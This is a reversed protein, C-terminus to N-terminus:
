DPGRGAALKPAPMNQSQAITPLQATAATASLGIFAVAAAFRRFVAM